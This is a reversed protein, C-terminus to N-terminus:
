PRLESLKLVKKTGDEARAAVGARLAGFPGSARVPRVIGRSLDMAWLYEDTDFRSRLLVLDDKFLLIDFHGKGPKRFDGGNDYETAWLWRHRDTQRDYVAILGGGLRARFRMEWLQWRGQSAIPALPLPERVRWLSIADFQEGQENKLWPNAVGAAALAAPSWLSPPSGRPKGPHEPQIPWAPGLVGDGSTPGVPEGDDGKALQALMRAAALDEDDASSVVAAEALDAVDALTPKSAAGFALIKFGAIISEKGGEVSFGTGDCRGQALRVTTESAYAARGSGAIYRNVVIGTPLLRVRLKDGGGGLEPDDAATVDSLGDCASWPSVAHRAEGGELWSVKGAPGADLPPKEATARNSVKGLAGWGLIAVYAAGGIAVTKSWYGSGFMAPVYWRARVADASM